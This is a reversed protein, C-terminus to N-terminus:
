KVLQELHSKRIEPRQFFTIYMAQILEPLSFRVFRFTRELNRVGYATSKLNCSLILKQFDTCYIIWRTLNRWM